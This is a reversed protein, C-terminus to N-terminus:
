CILTSLVKPSGGKMTGILFSAWPCVPLSHCLQSSVSPTSLQLGSEKGLWSTKSRRFLGMFERMFEKNIRLWWFISFAASLLGVYRVQHLTFVSDGLATVKAYCSELTSWEFWSVKSHFAISNMVVGLFCACILGGPFDLSGVGQWFEWWCSAPLFVNQGFPKLPSHDSETKEHGRGGVAREELHQCYNLSQPFGPEFEPQTWVM